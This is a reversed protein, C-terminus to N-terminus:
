VGQVHLTLAVQQEGGRSALDDVLDVPRQLAHLGAGVPHAHGGAPADRELPELGERVRLVADVALRTGFASASPLVAPGSPRGPRAAPITTATTDASWSVLAHATRSSGSPGTDITPLVTSRRRLRLVPLAKLRKWPKV